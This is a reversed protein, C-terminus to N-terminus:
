VAEVGGDIGSLKWGKCVGSTPPTTQSSQCPLHHPIPRRHRPRHREPCVIATSNSGITITRATSQNEPRYTGLVALRKELGAAAEALQRTFRIDLLDFCAGLQIIAGIVAPRKIKSHKRRAQQEAWEM